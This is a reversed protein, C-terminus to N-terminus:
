VKKNIHKFVTKYEPDLKPFVEFFIHKLDETLSEKAKSTKIVDNLVPKQINAVPKSVKLNKFEPKRGGFYISKNDSYLQVKSIM